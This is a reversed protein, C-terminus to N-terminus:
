HLPRAQWTFCVASDYHRGAIEALSIDVPAEHARPPPRPRRGKLARLLAALGLAGAVVVTAALKLLTDPRDLAGDVWAFFGPQVGIGAVVGNAEIRRGSETLVTLYQGSGVVGNVNEGALVEVGKPKLPGAGQPPM